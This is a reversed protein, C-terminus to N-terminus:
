NRIQIRARNIMAYFNTKELIFNHTVKGEAEAVIGEVWAGLASYKGTGDLYERLEHFLSQDGTVVPAPVNFFRMWTRSVMGWISARSLSAAASFPALKLAPHLIITLIFIEQDTTSKWRKEISKLMADIVKEDDGDTVQLDRYEKTLTGFILPVDDLRAHAAQMICSARALPELHKKM